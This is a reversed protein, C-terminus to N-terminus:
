FDSTLIVLCQVVDLKNKAPNQSRIRLKDISQSRFEPKITELRSRNIYGSSM